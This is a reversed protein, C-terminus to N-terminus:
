WTDSRSTNKRVVFHGFPKSSTALGNQVKSIHESCIPCKKIHEQIKAATAQDLENRAFSRANLKVQSCVIGGYNPEGNSNGSRPGLLNDSTLWYFSGVFLAGAFLAASGIRIMRSQTRQRRVTKAYQSLAGTPCEQWSSEGTQNTDIQTTNM